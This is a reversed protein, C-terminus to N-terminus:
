GATRPHVAGFARAVARTAQDFSFRSRVHEFAQDTLTRRFAVDRHIRSLADVFEITTEARLYHAGPVMDLGEVGKATSVVPTRLSAAELV